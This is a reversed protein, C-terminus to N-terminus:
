PSVVDEDDDLLLFAGLALIALVIAGILLPSIGLGGTEVIPAGTEVVPPASVPPAVPPPGPLPLVCGAGPQCNNNANAITPAAAMSLSAAVAAIKLVRM